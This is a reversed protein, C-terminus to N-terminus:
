AHTHFINVFQGANIRPEQILQLFNQFGFLQQLARGQLVHASCNQQRGLLLAEAISLNGVGGFGAFVFHPGIAFAQANHRNVFGHVGAGGFKFGVRGVVVGGIFGATQHQSTVFRFGHRRFRFGQRTISLFYHDQTTAGVPNALPNLKVIATTMSGKRQLRIAVFRDHNVGVRFRNGRVVVGAIPEVKFRQGLFIHQVDDFRFPGLAHNHLKTTLCGQFQRNRQQRSQLAVGVQWRLNPSSRGVRDVHGFVPFPKLMHQPFQVDHLGGVANSAAITFGQINGPPNAIRHHHPGAIHQATSGHLNDIGIRIQFAVHGHRHLHFRIVWDQNILIQFVRDLHIHIRDGVVTAVHRDAPDHFVDFLGPNM